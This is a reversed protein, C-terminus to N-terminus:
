GSSSVALVFGRSRRPLESDNLVLRKNPPISAVIADRLQLPGFYTPQKGTPRSRSDSDSLAVSNVRAM